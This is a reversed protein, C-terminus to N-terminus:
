ASFPKPNPHIGLRSIEISPQTDILLISSKSEEIRGNATSGQATELNRKTIFLCNSNDRLTPGPLTSHCYTPTLHYCILPLTVFLAFVKAYVVTYIIKM